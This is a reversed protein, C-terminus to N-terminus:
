DNVSTLSLFHSSSLYFIISHFVCLVNCYILSVVLKKIRRNPSQKLKNMKNAITTNYKYTKVYSDSFLSVLFGSWIWTLTYVFSHGTINCAFRKISLEMVIKLRIQVLYFWIMKWAIRLMHWKHPFSFYKREMKDSTKFLM